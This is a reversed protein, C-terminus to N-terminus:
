NVSILKWKHIYPTLLNMILANYYIYFRFKWSSEVANFFIQSSIQAITVYINYFLTLNQM